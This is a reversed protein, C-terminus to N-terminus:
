NFIYDYEKKSLYISEAKNDIIMNIFIVCINYQKRYMSHIDERNTINLVMYRDSKNDLMKKAEERTRTLVLPKGFLRGITRGIWGKNYTM